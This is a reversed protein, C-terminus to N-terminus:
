ELGNKMFPYIVIRLARGLMYIMSNNDNSIPCFIPYLVPKHLVPLVKNLRGLWSQNRFYNGAILLQWVFINYSGSTKSYLRKQGKAFKHSNSFYNFHNARQHFKWDRM